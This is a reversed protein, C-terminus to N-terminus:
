APVERAPPRDRLVGSVRLVEAVHAAWSEGLALGGCLCNSDDRRQHAVLIARALDTYTDM